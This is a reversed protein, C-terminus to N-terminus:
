ATFALAGVPLMEIQMVIERDRVYCICARSAVRGFATYIRSPSSRKRSVSQLKLSRAYAAGSKSIMKKLQATNEVNM